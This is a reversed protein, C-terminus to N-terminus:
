QTPFTLTARNAPGDSHLVAHKLIDWGILAQIGSKYFTATVIRVAPFIKTEGTRSKFHYSADFRKFRRAADAGEQSITM